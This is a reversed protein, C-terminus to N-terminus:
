HRWFRNNNLKYDFSALPKNITKFYPQKFYLTLNSMDLHLAEESPTQNNCLFYVISNVRKTMPRCRPAYSSPQLTESYCLGDAERCINMYLDSYTFPESGTAQVMEIRYGPVKLSVKDEPTIAVLFGFYYLSFAIMFAFYAVSLGVFVAIINRLFRPVQHLIKLIIKSACYGM